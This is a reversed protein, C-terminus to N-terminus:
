STCVFMVTQKGYLCRQGAFSWLFFSRRGITVAGEFVIITEEVVIRVAVRVRLNFVDSFEFDGCFRITCCFVLCKKSVETLGDRSGSRWCCELFYNVGDALAMWLTGATGSAM